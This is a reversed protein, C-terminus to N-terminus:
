TEELARQVFDGGNRAERVASTAVARLRTAGMVQAMKVFRKLTAIAADMAPQTLVHRAFGGRGILVMEKDRELISFDGAPSIEAILLHISNSGVDIVGVKVPPPKRLGTDQPSAPFIGTGGPSSRVAAPAIM